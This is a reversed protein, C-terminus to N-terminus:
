ATDKGSPSERPVGLVPDEALLFTDWFCPPESSRLRDGEARPFDPLASGGGPLEHDLDQSGGCPHIGGWPPLVSLVSGQGQTDTGGLAWRKWTSCLLRKSIAPGM